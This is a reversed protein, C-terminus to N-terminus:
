FRVILAAGGSHPWVFPAATVSMGSAGNAADSKRPNGGKVAPPKATNDAPASPARSTVFLIVSAIGLALASGLSLDAILAHVNRTDANQRSPTDDFTTKDNLAMVGFIAGVGAAVVAVGGTVYAPIRSPAEVPAAEADVPQAEPPPAEDTPEAAVPGPAAEPPAAEAELDASVTQASAFAIDIAREVKARGPATFAITHPGPALEVDLPAPATERKGDITVAAGAPNSEVHVKGPMARIALVRRRTKDALAAMKDPAHALFKDYWEAASQLRGLEDLCRGIYREAQPTAKINNAIRFDIEAGGYDHARFKLEGDDFHQKAVALDPKARAGQAAGPPAEWQARAPPAQCVALAGMMVGALIRAHPGMPLRIRPHPLHPLDVRKTGFYVDEPYKVWAGATPRLSPDLGEVSRM